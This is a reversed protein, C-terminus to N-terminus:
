CPPMMGSRGRAPGYADLEALRAQAERRIWENPSHDAMDQLTERIRAVAAPDDHLARALAVGEHFVLNRLADGEAAALRSAPDHPAPPQIM